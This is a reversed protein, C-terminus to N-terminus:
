GHAKQPHQELPRKLDEPHEIFWEVSRTPETSHCAALAVAMAILGLNMVKVNM